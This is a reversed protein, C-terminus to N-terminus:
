PEYLPLLDFLLTQKLFVLVPIILIKLKSILFIGAFLSLLFKSEEVKRQEEEEDYNKEENVDAKSNKNEEDNCSVNSSDDEHSHQKSDSYRSVSNICMKPDTTLKILLEPM